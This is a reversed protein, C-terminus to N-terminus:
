SKVSMAAILKQLQGTSELAALRELSDALREADDAIKSLNASVAVSSFKQMAAGVKETNDRMKRGVDVMGETAKKCVEVLQISAQRIADTTNEVDKKNQEITRMFIGLAERKHAIMSIYKDSTAFLKLNEQSFVGSQSYGYKAVEKLQGATVNRLQAPLIIAM